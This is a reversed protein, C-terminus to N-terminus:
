QKVVKKYSTSADTSVAIIYSGAALKSLDVREQFNAAIKGLDKQVVVNGALSYVKYMAKTLALDNFQITLLDNVPNPFLSFAVENNNFDKIGTGTTVKILKASSTTIAGKNDKAKATVNIDGAIAKWTIAYPALSDSGILVDNIYFEVSVVSGDVDNANATIEIEKNAIASDPAIVSVTPLQNNVVAPDFSGILSSIQIESTDTPNEAVYKQVGGNPTGIQLNLKFSFVGDTTFQGILVRNETNPGKSGGLCAVSGNSTSFSNGAQSVADFVDLESGLGVFTVKEPSGGIMGDHTSLPLGASTDDNLLIDDANVIAGDNDESKLVGIKGTAAAGASFWSDLMVTNLKTNNVTIGDPSTTGRDENNFFSTTTKILLEHPSAGNVGYLAQFKYNPLMDAYLRYTISGVPLVGTSGISDAANSVYFKEVIIKELGNQAQTSLVGTFLFGLGLLTKRM